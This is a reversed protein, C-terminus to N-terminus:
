LLQGPEKKNKGSLLTILDFYSNSTGSFTSFSFDQLYKLIELTYSFQLPFVTGEDPIDSPNLVLAIETGPIAIKIKDFCVLKLQYSGRDGLVSTNIMLDKYFLDSLINNAIGQLFSLNQPLEDVGILTAISPYFKDSM